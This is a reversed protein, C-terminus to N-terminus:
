SLIKMIELTIKPNNIVIELKINVSICLEGGNATRAGLVVKAARKAKVHRSFVGFKAGRVASHVLYTGGVTGIARLTIKIHVTPVDDIRDIKFLVQAHGNLRKTPSAFVSKEGQLVINGRHCIPVGVSEIIDVWGQWALIFQLDDYLALIM